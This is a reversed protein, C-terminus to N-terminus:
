CPEPRKAGQARRAAPNRKNTNVKEGKYGDWWKTRPAKDYFGNELLRRVTSTKGSGSRGYIWVGRTFLQDHKDCTFLSSLIRNYQLFVTPHETEIEFMNGERAHKIIQQYKEKSAQSGRATQERPVEGRETFDGDKKCYTVAQLVTGRKTEFHGTAHINKKIWTLRKKNILTIFGQLHPTEREGVEKGYILYECEVKNLKEIDEETYNNITFCWHRSMISRDM